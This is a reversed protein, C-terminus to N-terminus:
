YNPPGRANLREGGTILLIRNAWLGPSKEGVNIAPTVKRKETVGTVGDIHLSFSLGVAQLGRGGVLILLLIHPRTRHSPRNEVM